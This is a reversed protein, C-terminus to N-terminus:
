LMFPPILPYCLVTLSITYTHHTHTHTASDGHFYCAVSNSIITGSSTTCTVMAIGASTSTLTVLARGTTNSIATTSSLSGITTAFTLGVGQEPTLGNSVTATIVSATVGDAVLSAPAATLTMTDAALLLDPAAMQMSLICIIVFLGSIPIRRIIKM